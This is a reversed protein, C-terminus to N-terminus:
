EDYLTEPSRGLTRSIGHARLVQGVYQFSVGVETAISRYPRGKKGLALIKRVMAAAEVDTGRVGRRRKVAGDNSSM